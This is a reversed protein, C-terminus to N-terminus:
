LSRPLATHCPRDPDHNKGNCTKSLGIPAMSAIEIAIEIDTSFALIADAQSSAIAKYRLGPDVTVVQKFDFNGKTKRADLGDFIAWYM